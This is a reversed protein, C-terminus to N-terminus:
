ADGHRHEPRFLKVYCPIDISFYYSIMRLPENSANMGQYRWQGCSPFNEGFIFGLPVIDKGAM